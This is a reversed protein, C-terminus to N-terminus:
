EDVEVVRITKPKARRPWCRNAARWMLEVGSRRPSGAEGALAGRQGARVVNEASVLGGLRRDSCQAVAVTDEDPLSQDAGGRMRQPPVTEARELLGVVEARHAQSGASDAHAFVDHGTVPDLLPVADPAAERHDRGALDGGVGPFADRRNSLRVQASSDSPM